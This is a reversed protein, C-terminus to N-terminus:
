IDGKSQAEGNQGKFQADAPRSGLSTVVRERRTPPAM